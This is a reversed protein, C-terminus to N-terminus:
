CGVNLGEDGTDRFTVEHTEPLEQAIDGKQQIRRVAAGRDAVDLEGM